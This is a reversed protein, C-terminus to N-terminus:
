ITCRGLKAFLDNLVRFGRFGRLWAELNLFDLADAALVGASAGAAVVVPAAGSISSGAEFEFM